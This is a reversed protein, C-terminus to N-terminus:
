DGNDFWLGGKTRLLTPKLPIDHVSRLLPTIQERYCRFHPTGQRRRYAADNAYVEWLYWRNPNDKETATYLTYIGEESTFSQEMEALTLHYFIRASEATVDLVVLSVLTSETQEFKRDAMFKPEVQIRRKHDTLIEPSRRQFELYQPSHIHRQYAAEDRYVEFMYTINPTGQRRASYMALTGEEGGVSATINAEGVANYATDQGPKIGLEFINFIPSTSGLPQNDTPVTSTGQAYAYTPTFLASAAVGMMASRRKISNM